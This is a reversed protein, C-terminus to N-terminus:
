RNFDLQETMNRSKPVYRDTFVTLPMKFIPAIM